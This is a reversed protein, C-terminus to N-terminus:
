TYKKICFCNMLCYTLISKLKKLQEENLCEIMTNIIGVVLEEMIKETTENRM